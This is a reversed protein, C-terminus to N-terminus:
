MLMFRSTKPLVTIPIVATKKNLKEGNEDIIYAPLQHRLFSFYPIHRAAVHMAMFVYDEILCDLDDGSPLFDAPKVLKFDRMPTCRSSNPFSLDHILVSSGFYHMMRGHRDHREDRVGITM